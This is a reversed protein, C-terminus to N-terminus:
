AKKAGAAAPPRYDGCEDKFAKGEDRVRVQDRGAAPRLDTMPGLVPALRKGCIYDMIKWVKRLVAARENMM